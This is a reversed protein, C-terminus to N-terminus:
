SSIGPRVGRITPIPGIAPASATAWTSALISAAGTTSPYLWPCTLPRPAHAFALAGALVWRKMRGGYVANELSAGILLQDALSFIYAFAVSAPNRCARTSILRKECTNHPDSMM